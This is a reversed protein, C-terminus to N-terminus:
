LPDGATQKAVTGLKSRSDNPTGGAGVCAATVCGDAYAVLVNGATDHTMDIFDLLNRDNGCGVGDICITGRQVPNGAPSAQVTTWTAGADYTFAVYLQWTASTPVGKPGGASTSGLFATAAHGNAGSTIVPFAISKVGTTGVVNSAAWTAGKNTSKFVYPLHQNGAGAVTASMYVTGDPTTTVDPELTQGTVLGLPKTSRPTWTLGNDESVVVGNYSTGLLGGLGDLCFASPVYVTGDAAVHPHGVIGGCPVFATAPNWTLGGDPSLSCGTYAVGNYCYYVANPYVLTGGTLPAHFPGAAVKQHDNGPTGCAAPNYIWNGGENDSYWLMSCGVYLHDVFIRGTITDVWLMRDLTAVEPPVTFVNAWSTGGNTSKFTQLREKYYINGVPTVGILPEGANTAGPIVLNAFGPTVSSTGADGAAPALPGLLVQAAQECPTGPSYTTGPILGM